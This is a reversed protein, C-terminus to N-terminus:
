LQKRYPVTHVEAFGLSQYFSGTGRCHASTFFILAASPWRRRVEHELHLVLARGVGRNRCYPSVAIDDFYVKVRSMTVIRHAMAVGIIKQGESAVLMISDPNNYLDSFTQRKLRNCEKSIQAQLNDLDDLYSPFRLEIETM